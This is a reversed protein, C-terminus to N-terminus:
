FATLTRSGQGVSNFNDTTATTVVDIPGQAGDGAAVNAQQGHDM